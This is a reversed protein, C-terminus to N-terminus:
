NPVACQGYFDLHSYKSGMKNYSHWGDGKGYKKAAMQKCGTTTKTFLGTAVDESGEEVNFLECQIEKSAKADTPEDSACCCKYTKYGIVTFADDADGNLSMDIIRMRETTTTTTSSTTPTTTVTTTTTTITTTTITTTTTTTTTSTTTRIADPLETEVVKCSGDGETLEDEMESSKSPSKGVSYWSAWGEGVQAGCTNLSISETMDDLKCEVHEKHQRCCCLYRVGEIEAIKKPKGSAVDTFYDRTLDRVPGSPSWLTTTTTTITTTTTTTAKPVDEEPIKCAQVPGDEDEIKEKNQARGGFLNWPGRSKGVNYWSTWGKGLHTKCKGPIGVINAKATMDSLRCEVEEGEQRCCCLYTTGEIEATKKPKTDDGSTFYDFTLDRMPKQVVATTRAASALPTGTVILALVLAM